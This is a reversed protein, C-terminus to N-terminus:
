DTPSLAERNVGVNVTQVKAKDFLYWIGGILAMLLSQSFLLLSLSLAQAKLVGAQTFFFVFAGERIGVGLVSIPLVAIATILPIYIFYRGLDLDIAVARGVVFVIVVGLIQFFVSLAVLKLMAHKTNAVELIAARLDTLKDTVKALKLRQLLGSVLQLSRRHLTVWIAAFFALTLASVTWLLQPDNHARSVPIAVILAIVFNVGFGVIRTVFM